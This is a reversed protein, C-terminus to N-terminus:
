QTDLARAIKQKSENPLDNVSKVKFLKLQGEIEEVEKKSAVKYSETGTFKTFM